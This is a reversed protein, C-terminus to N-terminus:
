EHLPVRGVAYVPKWRYWQGSGSRTTAPMFWPEIRSDIRNVRAGHTRYQFSALVPQMWRIKARHDRGRLRNWWMRARYGGFLGRFGQFRNARFINVKVFAGTPSISTGADCALAVPHPDLFKGSSGRDQQVRNNSASRYGLIRSGISLIGIFPRQSVTINRHNM